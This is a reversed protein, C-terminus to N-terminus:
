RPRALEGPGFIDPTVTRSDRADDKVPDPDHPHGPTPTPTGGPPARTWPRTVMRGVSVFVRLDPAQNHAISVGPERNSASTVM